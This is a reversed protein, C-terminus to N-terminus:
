RTGEGSSRRVGRRFRCLSTWLSRTTEGLLDPRFGSRVLEYDMPWFTFRDHADIYGSERLRDIFEQGLRSLRGQERDWLGLSLAWDRRRPPVKRLYDDSPGISDSGNATRGARREIQLPETRRLSSVSRSAGASGRNNEQREITIVRNIRRASAKGIMRKLLDARKKLVMARLTDKIREEQFGALLLNVFIEGDNVLISWLLLFDRAADQDAKKELMRTAIAM